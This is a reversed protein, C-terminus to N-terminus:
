TLKDKWAPMATGPVGNPVWNFLQADTHGAAMHVRLDAPPPRLAAAARGDGRAPDGQSVPANAASFRRATALRAPAPPSPITLNSAALTPAEAVARGGVYLGIAVVLLSAALGPVAQRVRGRASRWAYWALAAGGLLALLALGMRSDPAPLGALPNPASGAGSPPVLDFRVATRADDQGQRRVIMVAQWRGAVGLEGGQAQYTGDASPNLPVEVEGLDQNLFSFRLVAKQVNAAPRGSQDAIALTYTNQGPHGPSLTLALALDAAGARLDLPRTAALQ